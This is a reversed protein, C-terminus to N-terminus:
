HNGIIGAAINILLGIVAANFLFSLISQATVAKRASSTMVSVDSTQAAAAITFALYLFDWYDPT